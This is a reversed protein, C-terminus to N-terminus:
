YVGGERLRRARAEGGGRGDHARAEWATRVKFLVESVQAESIVGMGNPLRQVEVGARHLWYWALQRTWRPGLMQALASVTVLKDHPM